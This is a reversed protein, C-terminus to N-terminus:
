KKQFLDSRLAEAGDLYVPVAKRRQDIDLTVLVRLIGPVSGAYEPEQSCFLPAGAFGTERLATAPNLATVDKTLSFIMSVVDDEVFANEHALSEILKKVSEKISDRSNDAVKIAGRVAMVM